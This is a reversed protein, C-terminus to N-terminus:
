SQRDFLVPMTLIAVRDRAELPGAAYSQRAEEVVPGDKILVVPPISLHQFQARALAERATQQTRQPTSSDHARVRVDRM